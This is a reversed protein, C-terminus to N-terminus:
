VCVVCSRGAWLNSKRRQSSIMDMLEDKDLELTTVDKISTSVDKQSIERGIKKRRPLEISAVHFNVEREQEVTSLLAVQLSPFFLGFINRKEVDLKHIRSLLNGRSIVSCLLSIKGGETHRRFFTLSLDIWYGYIIKVLSANGESTESTKDGCIIKRIHERHKNENGRM